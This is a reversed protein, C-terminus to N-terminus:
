LMSLLFFSIEKYDMKIFTMLRLIQPIKKQKDLSLWGHFAASVKIDLFSIKKNVSIKRKKGNDIVDVSCEKLMKVETNDLDDSKFRLAKNLVWNRPPLFIADLLGNFSSM